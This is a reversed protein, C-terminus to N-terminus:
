RTNSDLKELEKKISRIEDLINGNEKSQQNGRMFLQRHSYAQLNKKRLASARSGQGDYYKQPNWGRVQLLSDWIRYVWNTKTVKYSYPLETVTTGRPVSLLKIYLDPNMSFVDEINCIDVEYDFLRNRWYPPDVYHCQPCERM